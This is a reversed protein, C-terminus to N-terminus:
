DNLEEDKKFNDIMRQYSIDPHGHEIALRRFTTKGPKNHLVWLEYIKDYDSWGPRKRISEKYSKVQAEIHDASLKRGKLSASMKAKTKESLSIGFQPNLTGMKANRINLRAEPTRPKRMKDRQEPTPKWSVRRGRHSGSGGIQLNYTDPRDVFKRNVIHSEVIYMVEASVCEAIIERKFNSRGYKEIARKILPGSGLYRDTYTEASHAGIYIKGNVLNTTKYIFHKM